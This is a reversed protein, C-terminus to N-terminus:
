YHHQTVNSVSLIWAVRNWKSLTGSFASEDLRVVLLLLRGPDPTPSVDWWTASM